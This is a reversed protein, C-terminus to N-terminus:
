WPWCRRPRSRGAYVVCCALLAVGIWAAVAALYGLSSGAILLGAALLVTSAAAVPWLHRWLLQRRIGLMASAYAVLMTTDVLARAAWSFAAGAIGFRDVMVFLLVGYAPLQALHFKATVDPRGVGHIIAAPLAALGNASFGIALWQVVLTSRNAFPEGLWALLLEQAFALLASAIIASVMGLRSLYRLYLDQRHGIDASSSYIPLVTRGLAQGLITIRSLAEFPATYYAVSSMSSMSGIVFRDASALFPGIVNSISLWGGYGLLKGTWGSGGLPRRSGPPLRRIALIFLVVTGALRAWVIASVVWPLSQTYHAAVLPGLYTLVSVPIQAANVLKFEHRAELVGRFSSTLTISPVALALFLFASVTEERLSSDVNLLAVLGSSGAALVAGGVVGLLLNLLSSKWFIIQADRARGTDFASTMFRTTARGLGLDFLGFYGFVVWALTLIGFRATGIRDLLMPVAFLAVVAPLAYGLVNWGTNGLVRHHREASSVRASGQNDAM